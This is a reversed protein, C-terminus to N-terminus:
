SVGKALALIEAHPRETRGRLADKVARRMLQRYTARDAGYRYATWSWKAILFPLLIWFLGGTISRYLFLGNRHVYYAKWLPRFVRKRGDQFSAFDHQFSLSPDFELRFGRRRLGLTYMVDDSYIFLEPDPFGIKSVIGRPLFLGVFTSLDVPRPGPKAYCSDPIRYGGPGYFLTRLFIKWNWFPNVSPRNMECIRGDPLYVAAAVATDAAHPRTAFRQLTGPSPWADDDMVVIWDPDFCEAAHRMGAAFGGAGGRNTASTMIELRPDDQAALWDATGDTSANDVVVVAALVSAPTDLLRQLTRQLKDLRNYTVVVAVLVHPQLGTGTETNLLFREEEKPDPTWGNYRM